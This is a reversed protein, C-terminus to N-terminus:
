LTENWSANWEGKDEHHHTLQKHLVEVNIILLDDEFKINRGYKNELTKIIGFIFEMM